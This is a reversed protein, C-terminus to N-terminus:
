WGLPPGCRVKGMHFRCSICSTSRPTFRVFVSATTGVGGTAGIGDPRGVRIATTEQLATRYMDSGM